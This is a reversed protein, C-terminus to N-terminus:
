QRVGQWVRSHKRLDLKMPRGETKEGVVHGKCMGNGRIPIDKEEGYEGHDLLSEKIRDRSVQSQKPPAKRSARPWSM